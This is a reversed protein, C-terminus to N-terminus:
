LLKGAETLSGIASSKLLEMCVTILDLDLDLKFSFIGNKITTRGLEEKTFTFYDSYQGVKIQKGDFGSLRGEISANQSMTTGLGFLSLFCFLIIRM